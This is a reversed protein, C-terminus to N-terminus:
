LEFDTLEGDDAESSADSSKINKVADGLVSGFTAGPNQRLVHLLSIYGRIIERPTIMVDAGAKSLSISLFAKMDEGTLPIEYGYRESYLKNIRTVLALLEADTLRVLRIM